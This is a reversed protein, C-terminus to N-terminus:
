GNLKGAAAFVKSLCLYIASYFCDIPWTTTALHVRGTGFSVIACRLPPARTLEPCRRRWLRTRLAHAAMDCCMATSPVVCALLSQRSSCEPQLALPSDLPDGTRNRGLGSRRGKQHARKKANLKNRMYISNKGQIRRVMEILWWGDSRLM